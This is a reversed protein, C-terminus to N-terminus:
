LLKLIERVVLAGGTAVFCFRLKREGNAIGGDWRVDDDVAAAVAVGCDIAGGGVGIEMELDGRGNLDM